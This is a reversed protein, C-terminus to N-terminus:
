EEELGCLERLESELNQIKEPASDIAPDFYTWELFEKLKEEPVAIMGEHPGFTKLTTGELEGDWGPSANNFEDIVFYHISDVFDELEHEDDPFQEGTLIMLIQQETNADPDTTTSM